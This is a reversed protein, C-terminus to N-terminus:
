EEAEEDLKADDPIIEELYGTVQALKILRPDDAVLSRELYAAELAMPARPQLLNTRARALVNLVFLPDIARLCIARTNNVRAHALIVQKREEEWPYVLMAGKLEYSQWAKNLSANLAKMSERNKEISQLLSDYSGLNAPAKDGIIRQLSGGLGDLSFRVILGSVPLIEWTTRAPGFRSGLGSGFRSSATPAPPAPAPRNPAPLGSPRTGPAAPLGGPRSSSFPSAPQNTKQTM